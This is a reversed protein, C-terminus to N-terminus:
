PAGPVRFLVFDKGPTRSRQLTGRGAPYLRELEALAETHRPHLLYLKPAGDAAHAALAAMDPVANAWTVEGANIGIARTDVWHPYPVHYAHRLDGGSAAFARVAAAM